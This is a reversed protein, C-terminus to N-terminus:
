DHQDEKMQLLAFGYSPLDINIPKAYLDGPRVFALLTMIRAMAADSEAMGGALWQTLVGVEASIAFSLYYDFLSGVVRADIGTLARSFVADHVMDVLRQTFTPDGGRGLIAQYLQGQSRIFALMEETGPCAELMDIRAHIDDLTTQAITVVYPKLQTLMEDEVYTVLDEIDKFHSYFTRRTIDAHECLATVTVRTLDGTVLIEEALASVLARRTKLTRRDLSRQVAPAAEVQEKVVTKRLIVEQPMTAQVMPERSMLRQSITEQVM